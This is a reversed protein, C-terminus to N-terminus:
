VAGAPRSRKRWGAFLPLVFTLAYYVYVAPKYYGDAPNLAKVIFLYDLVAAIVTWAVALALYYAFDASKIRKFLVWLTIGTGVPAIIWGILSPPVLFFLIVSLVYGILWLLSGWGLTDKLLQKTIM